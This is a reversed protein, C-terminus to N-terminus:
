IFYKECISDFLKKTEFLDDIEFTENGINGEEAEKVLKFTKTFTQIIERECENLKNLDVHNISIVVCNKYAMEGNIRKLVDKGKGIKM